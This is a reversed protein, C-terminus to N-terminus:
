IFGEENPHQRGVKKDNNQTVLPEYNKGNGSHAKKEVLKDWKEREKRRTLKVRENKM